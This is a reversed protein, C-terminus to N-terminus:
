DDGLMSYILELEAFVRITPTDASIDADDVNINLNVEASGDTNDLVAGSVGVNRTRAVVGAVAQPLETAPMINVDGGTLSGDDAALTGLAFDGDWTTVIGAGLTAVVAVYTVCGVVLINGEPFDGIVASGFGVGTTGALDINFYNAIKLRRVPIEQPSGRKLSYHLGKPM